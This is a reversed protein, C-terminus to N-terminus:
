DLEGGPARRPTAGGDGDGHLCAAFRAAAPREARADRRAVGIERSFGDSGLAIEALEPPIRLSAARPVLAIGVGREVLGVIAQLEDLEVVDHVALHARRLFRQVLRGGYSGRDYRIFPQTALLARWDQGGLERRALLVFPERTLTEWRMESPLGFPPKIMVALDLEGADLQALLNLSVGPLVKIHWGPSHTRFRGIAGVLLSTQASAIAGVRLVGAQGGDGPQGLREFVALLEAAVAMTQRGADNLVAARGTRDFLPRGLHAELRQVQASVASQTLGIAAAARGFTGHRVVALFTKLERIM